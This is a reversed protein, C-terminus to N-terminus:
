KGNAAGLAKYISELEEDQSKIGCAKQLGTLNGYASRVMREGVGLNRLETLTAPRGLKKTLRVYIGKILEKKTM